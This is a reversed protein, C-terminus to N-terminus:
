SKLGKVYIYVDCEDADSQDAPLYRQMVGRPERLQHIVADFPLTTGALKPGVDGQAQAGHCAACGRQTFLVKGRVPDGVFGKTPKPPAAVCQEGISEAVATAVIQQVTLDARATSTPTPAVPTASAPVATKTPIPTVTPVPTLTSVISTVTSPPNTATAAETPAFTSAITAATPTLGPPTTAPALAVPAAPAPSATNGCAVVGALLTM